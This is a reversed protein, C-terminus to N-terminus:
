IVLHRLTSIYPQINYVRSTNQQHQIVTNDYRTAIDELDILVKIIYENM